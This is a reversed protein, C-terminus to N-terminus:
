RHAYRAAIIILRQRSQPVGYNAMDLISWRVSYDQALFLNIFRHFWQPKRDFLGSTNEMTVLRPKCKKILDSIAFCAAINAEDKKENPRTNAASYPQCPPSLHLIDVKVDINEGLFTTVDRPFIQAYPFNTSWTHCQDQGRDFGWAVSLGAMQAGRSVGGGGCFADGFTYRKVVSVNPRAPRAQRAQRMMSVDRPRQSVETAFISSLRRSTNALPSPESHPVLDQRRFARLSSGSHNRGVIGRDQHRSNAATTFTHSRPKTVRFLSPTRPTLLPRQLASRPHNGAEIGRDRRNLGANHNDSEDIVIVNNQQSQDSSDQTARVRFIDPLIQRMNAEEDLRSKEFPRWGNMSGGKITEGRSKKQLEDEPVCWKTDCEAAQLKRVVSQSPKRRAAKPYQLIVKWRCVLDEHIVWTGNFGSPTLANTMAIKRQEIVSDASVAYLHRLEKGPYDTAVWAVEDKLTTDLLGGFDPHNSQLFRHGILTVDEQNLLDQRLYMITLYEVHSGNHFSVTMSGGAHLTVHNVQYSQIDRKWPEVPITYSRLNSRPEDAHEENLLLDDPIVYYDIEAVESDTDSDLSYTNRTPMAPVIEDREVSPLINDEDLEIPTNAPARDRPLRAM